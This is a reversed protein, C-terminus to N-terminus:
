ETSIKLSKLFKEDKKAIDAPDTKKVLMTKGRRNRALPMNVVPGIYIELQIMMECGVIEKIENVVQEVEEDQAAATYIALGLKEVLEKPPKNM